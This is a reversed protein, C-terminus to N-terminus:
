QGSGQTPPTPLHPWAIGRLAQRMTKPHVSCRRALAKISAGNEWDVRAQLVKEETLKAHRVQTGYLRPVVVSGFQVGHRHNESRTVWELNEARPNARNSDIHNVEPLGKPNPLFARAVLRHVRVTVRRGKIAGRLSVNLYGKDTRTQCMICGRFKQRSGDTRTVVRDLSRVRGLNSVEYGDFGAVPRWEESM